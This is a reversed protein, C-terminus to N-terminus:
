KCVKWLAYFIVLIIKSLGPNRPNSSGDAGSFVPFRKKSNFSVVAIAWYNILHFYEFFEHLKLEETEIDDSNDYVWDPDLM